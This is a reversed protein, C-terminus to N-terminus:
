NILDQYLCVANEYVSGGSGCIWPVDRHLSAPLLRQMSAFPRATAIAIHLGQHRCADIVGLTRDLDLAILAIPDHMTSATEWTLFSFLVLCHGGGHPKGRPTAVYRFGGHDM